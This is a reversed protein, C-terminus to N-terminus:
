DQMEQVEQIEMLPAQVQVEQIEQHVLVEVTVLFERIEQHHAQEQIEQHELFQDAVLAVLLVV